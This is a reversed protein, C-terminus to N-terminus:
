IKAGTTTPEWKTEGDAQTVLHVTNVGSAQDIQGREYIASAANGIICAFVVGIIAGLWGDELLCSAVIGIAISLLVFVIIAFVFMAEKGEYGRGGIKVPTCPTTTQATLGSSMGDRFNSSLRSLSRCMAPHTM